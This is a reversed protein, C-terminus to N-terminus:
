DNEKIEAAAQLAEIQTILRLVQEVARPDGKAAHEVLRKVIITQHSMLHRKDKEFLATKRGLEDLLEAKLNEAGRRGAM